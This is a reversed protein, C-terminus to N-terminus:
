KYSDVNYYSVSFRGGLCGFSWPDVSLEQSSQTVLYTCINIVEYYTENSNKVPMKVSFVKWVSIM